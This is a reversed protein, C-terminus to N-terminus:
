LDINLFIVLHALEDDLFIRVDDECMPCQVEMAVVSHARAENKFGPLSEFVLEVQVEELRHDSGLCLEESRSVVYVDCVNCFLFALGAVAMYALAHVVDVGVPVFVHFAEAAAFEVALSCFGEDVEAAGAAVNQLALYGSRGILIGGLQLVWVTM